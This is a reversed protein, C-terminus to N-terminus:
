DRLGQLMMAAHLDLDDVGAHNMGQLRMSRVRETGHKGRLANSVKQLTLDPCMESKSGWGVTMLLDPQSDLALSARGSFGDSAMVHAIALNSIRALGGAWAAFKVWSDEAWIEDYPKSESQEVYQKQAQGSEAFARALEKLSRRVVSVPEVLVANSASQDYTGSYAIATAARDAGYSYGMHNTERVGIQSLYRLIPDVTPRLTNHRAVEFSEKFTLKGTSTGVAAPNGFVILQESSDAEFLRMVHLATNENAPYGFATHYVRAKQPDYDHNPTLTLVEIPKRAGDPLVSSSGNAIGYKDALESFSLSNQHEAAAQVSSVVGRDFYYYSLLREHTTM